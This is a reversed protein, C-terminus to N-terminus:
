SLALAAIGVAIATAALARKVMDGEGLVGADALGLPSPREGLFLIAGAVSLVPGAGRALPYVVSLDGDRYGRQLCAYYGVHLLGSGAMFGVGAWTIGGEVAVDVAALPAWLM